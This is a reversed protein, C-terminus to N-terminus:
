GKEKLFAYIFRRIPHKILTTWRYLLYHKVSLLKLGRKVYDNSLGKQRKTNRKKHFTICGMSYRLRTRLMERIENEDRPLLKLHKELYLFRSYQMLIGEKTLSKHGRRYYCVVEPVHVIPGLESIRLFFDTDECGHFFRLDFWGIREGDAKRFLTTHPLPNVDGRLIVRYGDRIFMCENEEPYITSGVREGTQNGNKDIIERDGVSLVAGPYQCLAGYLHAIRDRAMLDDDDHFVIFEGKALRGGATRTATVGQNKQWYYRIKSGYSAMLEPTEDTSGDDVVLIEVPRYSQNFVSAM